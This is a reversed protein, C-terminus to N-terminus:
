SSQETQSLPVVLVPIKSLKIIESSVSGLIFKSIGSLRRTGTVILDVSQEEATQVITKAIDEGPSDKKMYNANVNEKETIELAGEKVHRSIDEQEAFVSEPIFTDVGSVGRLIGPNAFLVIYEDAIEKLKMAYKLADKSNPSNDFAILIKMVIIVIIKYIFMQKEPEAM